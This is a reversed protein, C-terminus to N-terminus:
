SAASYPVRFEIRAGGLASPRSHIEVGGGHLRAIAHVLSLGLGTGEARTTFFPDALRPILEAPVGPGADDVRFVLDGGERLIRVDVRGGGPQAEIANAVLNRLAQRVKIRDARFSEVASESTVSWAQPRERALAARIAAELLERADVPEACLQEPQAFSLLGTIIADVEDVGESIAGAWRRTRANEGVAKKLLEAFGKIANMPNRIEHAIGAAMTGLGAMKDLARARENARALEEEMSRARRSLVSYSARLDDCVASLSAVMSELESSSPRTDPHAKV